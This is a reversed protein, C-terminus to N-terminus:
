GIAENYAEVQDPTAETISISDIVIDVAPLDSVETDVAHMELAVDIGDIVHGFLSFNPPLAEGNPGTVIFFQAGNTSPDSGQNAMALSGVRYQGAQPSGGDFTYGPGGTGNLGEVDGGQVMFDEIVRHFLVGEYARNRALFVFNNVSAADRTPDLVIEMTGLSTNMEAAYFTDLDICLPPPQEFRATVEASGDEPPCEGESPARLDVTTTTAPAVSTASGQASSDDAASDQAANNQADSDDAVVGEINQGTTGAGDDDDGDGAFM